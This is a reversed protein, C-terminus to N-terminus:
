GFFICGGQEQAHDEKRQNDESCILRGAPDILAELRM